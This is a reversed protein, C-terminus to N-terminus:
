PPKRYSKVLLKTQFLTLAPLYPDAPGSKKYPSEIQQYNNEFAEKLKQLCVLCLKILTPIASRRRFLIAVMDRGTSLLMYTSTASSRCACGPTLVQRFRPKKNSLQGNGLMGLSAAGYSFICSENAVLISKRRHACTPMRTSRLKRNKKKECTRLPARVFLGSLHTWRPRITYSLFNWRRAGKRMQSLPSKRSALQWRDRRRRASASVPKM